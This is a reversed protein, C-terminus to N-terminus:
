YETALTAVPRKRVSRTDNTARRLGSRLVNNLKFEFMLLGDKGCPQHIDIASM